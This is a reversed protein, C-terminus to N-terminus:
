MQDRGRGFNGASVIGHFVADSGQAAGGSFESLFEGAQVAILGLGFLRKGMVDFADGAVFLALLLQELFGQMMAFACLGGVQM